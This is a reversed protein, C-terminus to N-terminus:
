DTLYVVQIGARSPIPICHKLMPWKAFNLHSSQNLCFIMVSMLQPIWVNTMFDKEFILFVLYKIWIIWFLNETASYIPFYLHDKNQNWKRASPASFRRWRFLLKAKYWVLFVNAKFNWENRLRVKSLKKVCGWKLLSFHSM